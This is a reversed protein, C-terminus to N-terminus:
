VLQLLEKTKEEIAAYNGSNLLDATILKSGLGIAIAGAKQWAAIDAATADIGGTAMYQMGPFLQQMSKIYSPGVINAPFLKVCDWGAWQAAKIETPTLCGPIWRIHLQQAAASIAPKFFPSVLFDAGAQQYAAVEAENHITGVGLLLGPLEGNRLHVLQAFNAAAQPGRNTFEIVRIGARYLAKAIAMCVAADNHYFLPIIFQQQIAQVSDNMYTSNLQTVAM